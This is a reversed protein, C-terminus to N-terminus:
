KKKYIQIFKKKKYKKILDSVISKKRILIYRKENKFLLIIQKSKLIYDFTVSIRLFNENEKKTYLLKDSFNIKIQDKFISAIHGDSGVGIISFDPKNPLLKNYYDINNTYNCINFLKIKKNFKLIKFNKYNKNDESKTIREDTLFIKINSKFNNKKLIKILDKTTTGGAIFLNKIKKKNILCLCEKYLKNNSDFRKLM